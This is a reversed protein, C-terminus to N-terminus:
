WPQIHTPHVVQGVDEDRAGEVVDRIFDAGSAPDLAGMRKKAEGGSGNLGTALFGPSICWVKVNDNGLIRVWERMLMNM